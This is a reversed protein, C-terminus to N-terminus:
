SHVGQTSAILRRKPWDTSPNQMTSSGIDCNHGGQNESSRGMVMQIARQEGTTLDCGSNLCDMYNHFVSCVQVYTREECEQRCM